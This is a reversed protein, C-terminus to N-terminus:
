KRIAGAEWRRALDSGKRIHIMYYRYEKEFRGGLPNYYNAKIWELVVHDPSDLAFTAHVIVLDPPDAKLDKLIRKTFRDKFQNTTAFGGWITTPSSKGTYFYFYPENGWQYLIEDDFLWYQIEGSLKKAQYWAM